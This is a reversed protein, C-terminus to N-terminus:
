AKRGKPRTKPKDKRGTPAPTPATAPSEGRADSAGAATAAAVLPDAAAAAARAGAPAAAGRRPACIAALTRLMTAADLAAPRAHAARVLDNIAVVGVLAGRADVVPLRRVQHQQMTGMAAAVSDDTRCTRAPRAMATAVPIEGLPRGQTYAAMCLDRDTVVGVVVNTADVVPVSGCDQDWMVRAAADLREGIRVARPERSMLENVNM